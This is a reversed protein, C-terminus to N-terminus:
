SSYRNLRPTPWIYGKRLHWVHVGTVNSKIYNQFNFVTTRTIKISRSALSIIYKTADTRRDTQGDTQGDTLARVASGNTQTDVIERPHPRDAKICFHSKCIKGTKLKELKTTHDITNLSLNCLAQVRIFHIGQM